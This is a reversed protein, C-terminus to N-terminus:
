LPNRMEDQIKFVDNLTRDYTESWVHYGTDARILQATIRLQKGAKRVSGEIIYAVM